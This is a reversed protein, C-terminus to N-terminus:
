VKAILVTLSKQKCHVCLHASASIEQNITTAVDVWSTKKTRDTPMCDRACNQLDRDMGILKFSPVFSPTEM